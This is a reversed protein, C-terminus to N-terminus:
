VRSRESTRGSKQAVDRGSEEAPEAAPERGFQASLRPADRSASAKRPCTNIGLLSYIPCLGVLSTMAFVGALVYLIVPGVGMPGWLVGGAILAAAGVLRIVRDTGGVNLRM